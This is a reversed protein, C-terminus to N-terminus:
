GIRQAPEPAQTSAEAAVKPDAARLHPATEHGTSRLALIEGDPM